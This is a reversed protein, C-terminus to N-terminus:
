SPIWDKAGIDQATIYRNVTGFPTVSTCHVDGFADVFVKAGGGKARICAVQHKASFACAEQFTMQRIAIEWGDSSILEPRTIIMVTEDTTLSIIQLKDTKVLEYDRPGKDTRHFIQEDREKHIIADILNM